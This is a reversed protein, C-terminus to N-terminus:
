GDPPHWDDIAQFRNDLDADGDLAAIRRMEDKARELVGGCAVLLYVGFGGFLVEHFQGGLGGHKRYGEYEDRRPHNIIWHGGPEGPIEINKRSRPKPKPKEPEPPVLPALREMATAEDFPSSQVYNLMLRATTYISQCGIILVPKRTTKHLSCPIPVGNASMRRDPKFGPFIEEMTRRIATAAPASFGHVFAVSYVSRGGSWLQVLPAGLADEIKSQLAADRHGLQM